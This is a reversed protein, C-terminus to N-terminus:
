TDASGSRHRWEDVANQGIPATPFCQAERHLIEATTLGVREVHKLLQRRVALYNAGRIGCLMNIVM